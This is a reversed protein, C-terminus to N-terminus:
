KSEILRRAHFYANSLKTYDINEIFNIIDCCDLNCTLLIYENDNQYENNVIFNFYENLKFYLYGKNGNQYAKSILEFEFNKKSGYANKISENFTEYIKRTQM